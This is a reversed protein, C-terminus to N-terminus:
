HHVSVMSAAPSLTKLRQSSWVPSEFGRGEVSPALAKDV